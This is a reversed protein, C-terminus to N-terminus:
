ERSRGPLAEAPMTARIAALLERRGCPKLLVQRKAHRIGNRAPDSFVGGTVFIFREALAPHAQVAQEYLAIGDLAPMMVDCLVVDVTAADCAALGAFPDTFTRVDHDDELMTSFLECLLPEDDIVLVRPRRAPAAHAPELPAPCAVARSSAPLLVHFKGGAPHNPEIELTGGMAEVLEHSVALGFRLGMQGTASDAQLPDFIRRGGAPLIKSATDTITIMILEGRMASEVRVEHHTGPHERITLVANLLLNVFLQGLQASNARAAPVETYDRVLRASHRLENSAVQLSAELVQHVDTPELATPEAFAFMSVSKVVAAVRDLGVHLSEIARRAKARARVDLEADGELARQLSEVSAGMFTLPNNIEHAIAGVLAGLSVLRQVESARALEAEITRVAALFAVHDVPKPLYAAADIAAAQPSLDGSLALVPISAWRARRKQVIRFEWGSMAPMVLDLVIMDPLTEGRLRELGELANSCSTVAYGSSALVERLVARLDDDDDVVMIHFADSSSQHEPQTQREADLLERM